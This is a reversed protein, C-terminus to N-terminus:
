HKEHNGETREPINQFSAKFDIMIAEKLIRDLENKV